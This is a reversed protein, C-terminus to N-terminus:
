ELDQVAMTSRDVEMDQNAQNKIQKIAESITSAVVVLWLEHEGHGLRRIRFQGASLTRVLSSQLGSQAQFHQM